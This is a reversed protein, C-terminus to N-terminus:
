RHSARGTVGLCRSTEGVVHYDERHKNQSCLEFCFNSTLVIGVAADRGEARYNNLNTRYSIARFQGSAGLLGSFDTWGEWLLNVLQLWMGLEAQKHSGHGSSPSHAILPLGLGWKLGRRFGASGFAPPWHGSALEGELWTPGGVEWIYLPSIPGSGVTCSLPGCSFAGKLSIPQPSAQQQAGLGKRGQLFFVM